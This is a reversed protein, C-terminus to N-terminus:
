QEIVFNSDTCINIFRTTEYKQNYKKMMTVCDQYVMRIGNLECCGIM